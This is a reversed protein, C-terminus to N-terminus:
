NPWSNRSQNVSRNTVSQIVTEHRISRENRQPNASRKTVAQDVTQLL